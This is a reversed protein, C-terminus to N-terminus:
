AKRQERSTDDGTNNSSRRRVPGANKADVSKKNSRGRASTYALRTFYAKRAQEARRRREGIPLVGDPDVERQFRADFAARAPATAATPDACRAWKLHAALRARLTREAPTLPAM